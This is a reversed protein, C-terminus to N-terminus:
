LEEKAHPLTLIISTNMGDRSLIQLDARSGFCSKLRALVNLLGISSSQTDTTKERLMRNLKEVQRADIVRGSNTIAIYLAEEDLDASLTIHGGQVPDFGHEIANEALPQIILKPVQFDRAEGSLNVTCIIKQQFRVNQLAIYNETYEFERSLPVMDYPEYVSYTLLKGLLTTIKSIAETDGCVALAKMSQLVNNLFHPNIQHQLARMDAQARQKGEEVVAATLRDNKELMQMATEAIRDVEVSATKEFRVDKEGRGIANFKEILTNVPIMVSRTLLGSVAWIVAFAALILALVFARNTERLKQISDLPMIGLILWGSVESTETVVLYASPNTKCADLIFSREGKEINGTLQEQQLAALKLGAPLYVPESGSYIAIQTEGDRGSDALIPELGFDCMLYAPDSWFYQSSNLIPALLSVTQQDPANLLYDTPHYNVFEMRNVGAAQVFWPQQKFIYGQVPSEKYYYLYGGDPGVIVANKVDSLVDFQKVKAAVKRQNYLEISYDIDPNNMRYNVANIIDQDSVVISVVNRLQEFYNDILDINAQVIRRCYAYSQEQYREGNTHLVLAGFGAIVICFALSFSIVLKQRLTLRM